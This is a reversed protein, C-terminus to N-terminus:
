GNKMGDMIEILEKKVSDDKIESLVIEDATEVIEASYLLNKTKAVKYIIYDKNNEKLTFYKVVEIQEELGNENMVNLINTKM